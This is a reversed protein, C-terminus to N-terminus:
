GRQTQLADCKNWASHRGETDCTLGLGWHRPVHSESVLEKWLQGPKCLTMVAAGSGIHRTRISPLGEPVSVCPSATHLRCFVDALRPAGPTM